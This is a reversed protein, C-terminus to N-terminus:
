KGKGSTTHDFGPKKCADENAGRIWDMPHDNSYGPAHKDEPCQPQSEDKVVMGKTSPSGYRERATDLALQHTSKAM